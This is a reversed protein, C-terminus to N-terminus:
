GGSNFRDANRVFFLSQQCKISIAAKDSFAVSKIAAPLVRRTDLCDFHGQFPRILVFM